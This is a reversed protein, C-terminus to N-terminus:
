LEWITCLNLAIEVFYLIVLKLTQENVTKAMMAGKNATGAVAAKIEVALDAPIADVRRLAHVSGFGVLLLGNPVTVTM